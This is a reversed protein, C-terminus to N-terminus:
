QDSSKGPFSIAAFMSLCCRSKRSPWALPQSIHADLLPHDPYTSIIVKSSSSINRLRLGKEHYVESRVLQMRTVFQDDFPGLTHQSVSVRPPHPTSSSDKMQSELSCSIYLVLCPCLQELASQGLNELILFGLVVDGVAWM